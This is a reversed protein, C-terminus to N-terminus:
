RLCVSRIFIFEKFFIFNKLELQKDHKGIKNVIGKEEVNADHKQKLEDNKKRM